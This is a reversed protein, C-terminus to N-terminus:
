RLRALLEALSSTLANTSRLRGCAQLDLEAQNAAQQDLRRVSSTGINLQTGDFLPTRQGNTQNVPLLSRQSAGLPAWIGVFMRGYSINNQQSPVCPATPNQGPGQSGRDYILTLYQAGPRFGTGTGTVRLRDGNDEFDVTADITDDGQGTVTADVDVLRATATDPNTPTQAMATPALALALLAVAPAVFRNLV